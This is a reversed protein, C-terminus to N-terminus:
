TAEAECLLWKVELFLFRPICQLPPQTPGLPLTSIRSSFCFRKGRALSEVRFQRTVVSVSSALSRTRWIYDSNIKQSQKMFPPQLPRFFPYTSLLVNQLHIKFNESYHTIYNRANTIIVLFIKNLTEVKQEYYFSRFIILCSCLM